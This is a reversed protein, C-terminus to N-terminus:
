AKRRGGRLLISGSILCALANASSGPDVEPVDSATYTYGWWDGGYLTVKKNTNDYDALVVQFQVSSVPNSEYEKEIDYPTDLFWGGGGALTGATGKADYFPTSAGLNDLLTAAVGKTVESYAQIWHLDTFVHASSVPTYKLNFVAGGADNIGPLNSPYTTGNAATVAPQTVM